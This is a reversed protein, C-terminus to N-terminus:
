PFGGAPTADLSIGSPPTHTLWAFLLSIMNWVCTIAQALNRLGSPVCGIPSVLVNRVAACKLGTVM